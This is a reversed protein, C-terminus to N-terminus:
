GEAATEGNLRHALERLAPRESPANHRACVRRCDNAYASLLGSFFFGGPPQQTAEVRNKALPYASHVCWARLMALGTIVGEHCMGGCEVRKSLM